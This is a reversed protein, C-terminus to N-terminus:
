EGLLETNIIKKYLSPVSQEKTSVAEINFRVSDKVTSYVLINVVGEICEKDEFPVSTTDLWTVM